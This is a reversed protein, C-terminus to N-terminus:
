RWVPTIILEPKVEDVFQEVRDFAKTFEGDGAGPELPINLKTGAAKGKGTGNCLGHWPISAPWKTFTQL